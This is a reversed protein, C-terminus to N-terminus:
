TARAAPPRRWRPTEDVFPAHPPRPWPQAARLLGGFRDLYGGVSPALSRETPGPTRPGHGHLRGVVDPMIPTRVGLTHVCAVTRLSGARLAQALALVESRPCRPHEQASGVCFWVGELADGAGRAGRTSVANEAPEGGLPARCAREHSGFPSTPVGGLRHSLTQALVEGAPTAFVFASMPCGLNELADTLGDILDDDLALADVDVDVDAGLDQAGSESPADDIILSGYELLLATRLTLPQTPDLGSLAIRSLIREVHAIAQATPEEDSATIRKLAGRAAAARGTLAAYRAQRLLGETGLTTPPVQAIHRFALDLSGRRALIRARLHLLPGDDRTQHALITDAAEILDRNLLAEALLCLDATPAEPARPGVHELLESVNAWRFRDILLASLRAALGSKSAEVLARITKVVSSLSIEKARILAEIKDYRGYELTEALHAVHALQANLSPSPSPSTPM